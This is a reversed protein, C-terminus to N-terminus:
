MASSMPKGEVWSLSTADTSTMRVSPTDSGLSRSRSPSGSNPRPRDEGTMRSAPYPEHRSLGAIEQDCVAQDNREVLLPADELVPRQSDAVVPDYLHAGA